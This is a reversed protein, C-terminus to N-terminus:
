SMTRLTSSATTRSSLLAGGPAIVAGFLLMPFDKLLRQQAGLPPRQRRHERRHGVSAFVGVELTALDVLPSSAEHVENVCVDDAVRSPASAGVRANTTEKPIRRGLADRQKERRDRDALQALADFGHPMAAIQSLCGTKGTPEARDCSVVGVGDEREILLDRLYPSVERGV